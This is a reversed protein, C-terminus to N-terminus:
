APKRAAAKARAQQARASQQEREVRTREVKRSAVVIETLMHANMDAIADVARADRRRSKLGRWLARLGGAAHPAKVLGYVVREISSLSVLASSHLLRSNMFPGLLNYVSTLIYTWPCWRFRSTRAM